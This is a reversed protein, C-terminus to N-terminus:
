HKKITLPRQFYKKFTMNRYASYMLLMITKNKNSLNTHVWSGCVQVIGKGESHLHGELHEEQVDELVQQNDETSVVM